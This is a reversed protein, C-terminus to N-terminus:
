ELPVLRPYWRLCLYAWVVILLLMVRHVRRLAVRPRESTAFWVPVVFTLLVISLIIIKAM